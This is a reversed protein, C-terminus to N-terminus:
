LFNDSQIPKSRLNATKSQKSMKRKQRDISILKARAREPSFRCTNLIELMNQLIDEYTDRKHSKLNDLRKKTEKTLKITTIEM